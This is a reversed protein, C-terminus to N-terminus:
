PLGGGAIRDIPLPALSTVVDPTGQAADVAVGFDSWASWLRGGAISLAAQHQDGSTHVARRPLTLTRLVVPTSTVDIERLVLEEGAGDPALPRAWAALFARGSDAVLAPGAVSTSAAVGTPDWGVLAPSSPALQDLVAGRLRPTTVVGTAGPDTGESFVVLWRGSGISAL